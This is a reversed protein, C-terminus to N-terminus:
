RRLNERYDGDANETMKGGRERLHLLQVTRRVGGPASGPTVTTVRADTSCRIGRRDPQDTQHDRGHSLQHRGTTIQFTASFGRPLHHVRGTTDDMTCTESGVKM